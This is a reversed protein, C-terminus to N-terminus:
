PVSTVRGCHARIDEEREREVTNEEETDTRFLAQVEGFPDGPGVAPSSKCRSSPHRRPAPSSPPFACGGPRARRKGGLQPRPPPSLVRTM